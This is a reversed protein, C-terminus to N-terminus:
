GSWFSSACWYYNKLMLPIGAASLLWPIPLPLCKLIILSHAHTEVGCINYLGEIGVHYELIIESICQFKMVFAYFERLTIFADGLSSM